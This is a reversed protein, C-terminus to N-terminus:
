RRSFVFVKLHSKISALSKDDLQSFVQSSKFSNYLQVGRYYVSKQAKNTIFNSPRLLNSQRTNRNSVEFNTSLKYDSKVLGMTIKHIFLTSEYDITQTFSLFKEDYLSDTPTLRDLFRISKIAKNQLRQVKELLSKSAASWIPLCYTFRSHIFAYYLQMLMPKYVFFRVKRLLGTFPAVKKIVNEIHPKWSLNSDLVLGLYTFSQVREITKNNFRIESFPKPPSPKPRRILLPPKKTKRRSKKKDLFTRFTARSNKATSNRIQLQFIMFKTKKISMAFNISSLFSELTELDAKMKDHLQEYDVAHYCFAADDAYLRGTGNLKLHLLDNIYVLFLIPSIISGQPSGCVIKAPDSTINNAVVVQERGRFYNCLLELAKSEIGSKLLIERMIKFNLCDFAKSIDIFLTATKLKKNLGTVIDNVLCSAASTTNCGKMFGYQNEHIIKNKTLHTLLRVRIIMEFVKSLIPLISIPRYNGVDKKDGSKFIPKVKAFKLPDPFAGSDFSDNIFKSLLISLVDKNDKVFQSTISDIGSSVNSKLSDIMEEVEKPTTHPFSKLSHSITPRNNFEFNLSNQNGGTVNEGVTTFFKNVANPVKEKAIEEGDVVLDIQDIQNTNSSNTLLKRTTEWMEHWNGLCQDYSDSYFKKKEKYCEKKLISSYEQAKVAYYENLPFSKRLRIFHRKAKWLKRLNQNFWPKHFTSSNVKTIKVNSNVAVSSSLFDYLDKFTEFSGSMLKNRLSISVKNFDTFIKQRYAPSTKVRKNQLILLLYKHDSIASEGVVVKFSENMLDTHLHDIVSSSHNDSRTIFEKSNLVFFNNASLLNNLDRCGLDDRLNINFDGMCIMRSYDELIHDYAELFEGMNSSNSTPPRYVGCVSLNLDELRLIMFEIERVNIKKVHHNVKHRKNIYFVMGGGGRHARTLHFSNFGELNYVGSTTDSESLFTETLLIVDVNVGASQLSDLFLEFLSFKNLLSRVNLSLFILDNEGSAIELEDELIYDIAINKLSM